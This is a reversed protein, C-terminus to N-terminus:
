AQNSSGRAQDFLILVELASGIQIYVIGLLAGHPNFLPGKVHLDARNGADTEIVSPFCGAQLGIKSAECTLDHFDSNSLDASKLFVSAM